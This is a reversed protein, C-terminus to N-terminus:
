DNKEEVYPMITKFYLTEELKQYPKHGFREIDKILYLYLGTNVKGGKKIFHIVDKELSTKPDIKDFDPTETQFVFTYLSKEGPTAPCIYGQEQIELIKSDIKTIIHPLQPSYLWSVCWFTKYEFEPYHTNFFTTADRFSQKISKSDYPVKSPIHFDIVADGKKIIKTWDSKDLKILQNTIIGRSNVLNGFYFFETEEYTTKFSLTNVQNVGVFQGLPNISLGNEVLVCTEDTKNNVFVIYPDTFIHHMFNLSGIQILGLCALYTTWGFQDIGFEKHKTYYNKVYNKLHGLNFSAHKSDINRKKHDIISSPVLSLIILLDITKDSLAKHNLKPGQKILWDSPHAGINIAYQIFGLAFCLKLDKNIEELISFLPSFDIDNIQLLQLVENLDDCSFWKNSTKQKYFNFIQVLKENFSEYGLYIRLEELNEFM